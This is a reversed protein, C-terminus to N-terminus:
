KINKTEIMEGTPLEITFDGVQDIYTVDLGIHFGGDTELYVLEMKDDAEEKSYQKFKNSKSDNGYETKTYTISEGSYNFYLEIILKNNGEPYEIDEPIEDEWWESCFEAVQKNVEEITDGIYANTGHNHDVTAIQITKM